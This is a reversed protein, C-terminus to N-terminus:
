IVEVLEEEIMLDDVIEDIKTKIEGWMLIEELHVDKLIKLDKNHDLITIMRMKKNRVSIGHIVYFEEVELEDLIQKFKVFM